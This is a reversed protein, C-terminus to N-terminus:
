NKKIKALLRDIVVMIFFYLLVSGMITLITLIIKLPAYWSEWFQIYHNMQATIIVVGIIFALLCGINAVRNSNLRKLIEDTGPM